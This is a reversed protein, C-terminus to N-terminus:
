NAVQTVVRKVETNIEFPKEIKEKGNNVQFTYSGDRLNSLDFIKTFKETKPVSITYLVAGSYDRILVTSKTNVQDLVLRFQLNDLSSLEVNLKTTNNEGAISFNATSVGVLVALMVIIKKM